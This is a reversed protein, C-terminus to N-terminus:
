VVKIMACSLLWVRLRRRGGSNVLSSSSLSSSSLEFTVNWLSLRAYKDPGLWRACSARRAYPCHRLCKHQRRDQRHRAKANPQKMPVIAVGFLVPTAFQSHGSTTAVLLLYPGAFSHSQQWGLEDHQGEQGEQGQGLVPVGRALYRSLASWSKRQFLLLLVLPHHSNQSRV